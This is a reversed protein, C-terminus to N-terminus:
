LLINILFDSGSWFGILFRIRRKYTLVTTRNQLKMKYSPWFFVVNKETKPIIREM